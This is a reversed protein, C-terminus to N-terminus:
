YSVSFKGERVELTSGDAPSTAIFEFSGELRNSANKSISIQAVTASYQKINGDSYRRSAGGSGTCSSCNIPLVLGLTYDGNAGGLSIKYNVVIGKLIDSDAWDGGNIKASIFNTAPSNDASKCAPVSLILVFGLLKILKLQTIKNFTKM